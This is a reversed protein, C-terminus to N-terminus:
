VGQFWSQAVEQLLAVAKNINTRGEGLAQAIETKTHGDRLLPLVRKATAIVEPPTGRPAARDLYKTLSETAHLLGMTEQESTPEAPKSASAVDTLVYGEDKTYSMIGTQEMERIRKQKRHFNSLVGQCVMHVYHGFSSKSADWPCKGRNRTVLGLYVQQLVDEPDYGASNIWHGFGAFLLSAVEDARGILDIGLNGPTGKLAKQVLTTNKRTQVTLGSSTYVKVEPVVTLRHDTTVVKSEWGWGLVEGLDGDGITPKPAHKGVKFYRDFTWNRGTPHGTLAAVLSRKSEHVEVQGGPRLVEYTGDVVRVPLPTESHDDRGFFIAAQM